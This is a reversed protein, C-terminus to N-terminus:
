LHLRYRECYRKQSRGEQDGRDTSHFTKGRMRRWMPVSFSLPMNRYERSERWVKTTGSTGGKDEHRRQRRTELLTKVLKEIGVDPTETKSVGEVSVMLSNPKTFCRKRLSRERLSVKELRSPCCCHTWRLRCDGRFVDSSQCRRYLTM